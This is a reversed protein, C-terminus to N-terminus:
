YNIAVGVEKRVLNNFVENPTQYGLIKRPRNNIEEIVDQLEEETVEKFDTGKPFYYRLLWNGHENSGRQWASYPDAFYTAMKLEEKLRFHLHNERGNDLTTSKRATKIMRAFIKKQVKITQESDIAPVKSGLYKRSIREIETHVGDQHGKGEVTDGEWHGFEERQNVVEPRLKISVRDPIAAKHVKRGKQKRRKKQKRRLYEFWGEKLQEKQYIWRYITEATIWWHKDDPHDLKLRGAIGDPSWGMRLHETVYDYVDPNKLEPKAHALRQEREDARAQAHIAVYYRNGDPSRFSNRRLERGIVSPHRNLRRACGKNSLGEAKFLALLDREQATIRKKTKM